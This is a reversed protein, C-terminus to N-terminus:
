QQIDTANALWLFSPVAISVIAIRMDDREVQLHYTARIGPDTDEV